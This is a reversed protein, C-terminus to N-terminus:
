RSREVFWRITERCTTKSSSLKGSAAEGLRISRYKRQSDPGVTEVMPVWRVVALVEVRAGRWGAGSIGEPKSGGTAGRGAGVTGGPNRGRAAVVAAGGAPVSPGGGQV